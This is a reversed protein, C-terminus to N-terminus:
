PLGGRVCTCFVCACLCVSMDDKVSVSIMLRYPDPAINTSLWLQRLLEKEHEKVRDAAELLATKRVQTHSLSRTHTHTRAHQYM